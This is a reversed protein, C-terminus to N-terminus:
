GGLKDDLFGMLREHTAAQAAQTLPDSLRCHKAQDQLAAALVALLLPWGWDGRPLHLMDVQAFWLRHNIM